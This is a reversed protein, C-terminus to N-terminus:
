STMPRPAAQRQAPTVPPHMPILDRPALRSTAAGGRRHRRLVQQASRTDSNGDDNAAKGSFIGRLMWRPGDVGVIRTNVTKGGKVTVPLHLETGFVGAHESAKENAELLDARVDDWLGM